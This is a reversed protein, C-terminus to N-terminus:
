SKVEEESTICVLGMEKESNMDADRIKRLVLHPFHWSNDFNM